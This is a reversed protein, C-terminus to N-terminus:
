NKCDTVMRIIKGKMCRDLQELSTSSQTSAFNTSGIYKGTDNFSINESPLVWDPALGYKKAIRSRAKKDALDPDMGSEIYQLTTDWLGEDIDVDMQTALKGDKASYIDIQSAINGPTTWVSREPNPSFYVRALERFRTGQKQQVESNLVRVEISDAGYSAIRNAVVVGTAVWEQESGGTVRLRVKAVKLHDAFMDSLTADEIEFPMSSIQQKNESENKKEDGGGFVMALVFFLVAFFGCGIVLDKTTPAPKGNSAFKQPHTVAYPLLAISLLALTLFFGNM